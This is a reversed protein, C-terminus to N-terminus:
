LTQIVQIQGELKFTEIDSIRGSVCLNEYINYREANHGETRQKKVELLM